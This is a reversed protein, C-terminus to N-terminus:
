GRTRKQADPEPDLSCGEMSCEDFVHEVLAFPPGNLWTPDDTMFRRERAEGPHGAVREIEVVEHPELSIAVIVRSGVDTCRWRKAGCWFELGIRFQDHTMLTTRERPFAVLM